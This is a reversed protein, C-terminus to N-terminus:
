IRLAYVLRLFSTLWCYIVYCSMFMISQNLTTTLQYRPKQFLYFFRRWFNLSFWKIFINEGTDARQVESHCHWSREYMLVDNQCSKVQAWFVEKEWCHNTKAGFPAWHNFLLLFGLNWSIKINTQRYSSTLSHRSMVHRNLRDFQIFQANHRWQM